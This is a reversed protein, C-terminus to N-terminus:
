APAAPEPCLQLIAILMHKVRLNTADCTAAWLKAADRGLDAPANGRAYTMTGIAIANLSRGANAAVWGGVAALQVALMHVCCVIVKYSRLTGAKQLAEKEGNAIATHMTDIHLRLEALSTVAAPIRKVDTFNDSTIRYAVNTEAVWAALPTFDRGHAEGDAIEALQIVTNALAINM